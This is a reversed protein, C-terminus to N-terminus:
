RVNESRVREIAALLAQLPEEESLRHDHGVSILSSTPLGSSQLLELTDAYPIVEDAPAHLILTGPKVTRADGWRKWAPCLLVLPTKDAALNMAIAGGRSSGVVIDPRYRELDRQAIQVADGFNEDPLAPQILDLGHNVLYTPKVGGPVSQWGHLYLIKM